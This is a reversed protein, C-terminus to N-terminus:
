DEATGSLSEFGERGGEDKTIKGPACKAVNEVFHNKKNEEWSRPIFMEPLLCFFHM